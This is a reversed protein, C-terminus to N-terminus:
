MDYLCPRQMHLIWSTKIGGSSVSWHYSQVTWSSYGRALAGSWVPCSVPVDGSSTHLCHHVALDRGRGPVTGWDFCEM